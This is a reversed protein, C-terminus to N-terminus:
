GRETEEKRGYMSPYGCVRGVGTFVGTFAHTPHYEHKEAHTHTHTHYQLCCLHWTKAKPIAGRTFM